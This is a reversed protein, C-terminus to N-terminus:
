NKSRLTSIINKLRTMQEPMSYHSAAYEMNNKQIATMADPHDCYYAVADYVASVSQIDILTGNSDRVIEPIYRFNTSIIVNGARMAEIISVPFAESSYYTPLIFIDTVELLKRKEMGHVVGRYSISGPFKKEIESFHKWFLREISKKNCSRDGVFHGAIDLHLSSYKEHLASYAKLLEIIGKTKMINSLYLLHIIPSKKKDTIDDLSLDYSNWLVEVRSDPFYGTLQEKMKETLVIHLDITRYLAAVVKKEVITVSEYFSIFDSGSLRNVLPVRFVNAIVILFMDFLFGKRSRSCTFFVLDVRYFLLYALIKIIALASCAMQRLTNKELANLRVLKKGKCCVHRYINQLAVAQGFIPPPTPGVFLIKKDLYRNTM